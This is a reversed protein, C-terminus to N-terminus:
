GCITGAENVVAKKALPKLPRVNNGCAQSGARGATAVAELARYLVNFSANIDRHLSLGCNPCEHRRDKLTKPVITGCGSCMQTTGRPDVCVVRGGAWEAKYSLMQKFQDWSADNIYKALFNNKKMDTINLNEVAIFGYYDVLARSYKHMFDSRQNVVKEHCRAVKLIAKRRNNSGKKKRSKRRELMKLRKSSKILYKPNERFDGDTTVAFHTLGVDIGVQRDKHPHKIHTSRIDSDDVSFSAYWNNSQTRKITLTKIKGKIPRHLVIPINGVKFVRLRRDSKFGFGNQRYTISKYFKKFRPFGVKINKGQKKEKCRRFFGKYAEKIRKSINQAAQANLKKYKQHEKKIDIIINNIDFESLTKKNQKYEDKCRQLLLNYLEQAIDLQEELRFRQKSTPYLRYKYSIM